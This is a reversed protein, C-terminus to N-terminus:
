NLRNEVGLGRHEVLGEAWELFAPLKDRPVFTMIGARLQDVVVAIDAWSVPGYRRAEQRVNVDALKAKAAVLREWDRWAALEIRVPDLADHLERLMGMVNESPEGAQASFQLETLVREILTRLAWPLPGDGKGISSVLESMRADMLRADDTLDFADAIERELEFFTRGLRGALAQRYKSRKGTKWRPSSPGGLSL